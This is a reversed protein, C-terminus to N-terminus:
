GQTTLPAPLLEAARRVTAALGILIVIETILTTWAAGEAGWRPIAIANM